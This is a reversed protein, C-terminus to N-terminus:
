CSSRVSGDPDASRGMIEPPDPPATGVPERRAWAGPDATLTEM